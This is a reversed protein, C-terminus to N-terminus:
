NAATWESRSVDVIACSGDGAKELQGSSVLVGGFDQTTSKGPALNTVTALLGSVQDGNEALFEGEIVYDAREDGHNTVKVTAELGLGIVSESVKCAAVKVDEKEARADDAKASKVSKDVENIATAGIVACGGFLLAGLVTAPLCGFLAIKKGTSMGPKPPLPAYPAHTM